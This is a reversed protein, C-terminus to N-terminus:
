LRVKFRRKSDSLVVGYSPNAPTANIGPVGPYIGFQDYANAFQNSYPIEGSSNGVYGITLIFDHEIGLERQM